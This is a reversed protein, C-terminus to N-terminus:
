APWVINYEFDYNVNGFFWQEGAEALTSVRWLVKTNGNSDLGTSDGINYEVTGMYVVKDVLLDGGFYIEVDYMQIIEPMMFNGDVSEVSHWQSTDNPTNYRLLFPFNNPFPPTPSM